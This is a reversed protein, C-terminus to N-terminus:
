NVSGSAFTPPGRNDHLLMHVPLHWVILIDFGPFTDTSGIQQALATEPVALQGGASVLLQEPSTGGFSPPALYELVDTAHREM